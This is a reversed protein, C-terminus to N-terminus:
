DMNTSIGAFKNVVEVVASRKDPKFNALFVHYENRTKDGSPFIGPLAFHIQVWSISLYLIYSM